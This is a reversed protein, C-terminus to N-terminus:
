MALFMKSCHKFPCVPLLASILFFNMTQQDTVLYEQDTVLDHKISQGWSSSCVLSGQGESDGPTKRLNMDVSDTISNLWRM